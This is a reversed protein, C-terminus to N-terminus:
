FHALTKAIAQRVRKFSRARVTDPMSKEIFIQAEVCVQEIAQSVFAVKLSAQSGLKVLHSRTIVRAEGLVDMQHEGRPGPNFTLDYAPALRWQRDRGLRFSINKAHDDRNNFIVNFVIRRFGQEVEREDRTLFQTARLFTLYDVSGPLRFDAHLLGALTHTPARLDGDRDFRQIGFAALGKGLAIHKTDPVEIGCLAAAKTYLDELACVEAHEGQAPFKFLWPAFGVKCESRLEGSKTHYHLLVKPRAGQPSGGILALKRLATTEDGALVLKSAQALSALDIKEPLLLEETAPLFTLAGTAREGIFALRDLPSLNTLDLGHQRFLRDMLLMGWGDPLADAIVGPLHQQHAPFAGFSGARLPLHRPSLEFSEQLARASYEFLIRQGNDALTGLLWHEGWGRYYVELKKM